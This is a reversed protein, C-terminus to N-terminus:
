GCWGLAPIGIISTRTVQVSSDSNTAYLVKILNSNGNANPEFESVTRSITTNKQPITSNGDSITVTGKLSPIDILLQNALRGNLCDAPDPTYVTLGGTTSISWNRVQNTISELDRHISINISDRLRSRSLVAMVGGFIKGSQSAMIALIVICVIIEVLTFGNPFIKLRKAVTKPLLACKAKAMMQLAPQGPKIPFQEICFAMM